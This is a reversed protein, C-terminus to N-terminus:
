KNSNQQESKALLIKIDHLQSSADKFGAETKDEVRDIKASLEIRSSKIEDSMDKRLNNSKDNITNSITWSACVGTGLVTLIALVIGVWFQTVTLSKESMKDGNNPGFDADNGKIRTTLPHYTAATPRKHLRTADLNSILFAEVTEPKRFNSARQQIM